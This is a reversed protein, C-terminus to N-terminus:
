GPAPAPAAITVRLRTGAALAQTTWAFVLVGPEGGGTGKGAQARLRRGREDTLVVEQVDAFSRDRSVLRVALGFVKEPKRDQIDFLQDLGEITANIGLADFVSHRAADGIKRVRCADFEVVHPVKVVVPAEPAVMGDEMRSATFYLFSSLDDEVVEPEDDGVAVVKADGDDADDADADDDGVPAPRPRRQPVEICLYSGSFDKAFPFREPTAWDAGGDHAIQWDRWAQQLGDVGSVPMFWYGGFVGLAGERVSAAAQGGALAYLDLLLEPVPRGADALAARLADRPIPPLLSAHTLPAHAALWKVIRKWSASLDNAL